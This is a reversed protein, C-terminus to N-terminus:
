IPGPGGAYNYDDDQLKERATVDHLSAHFCCEYEVTVLERM